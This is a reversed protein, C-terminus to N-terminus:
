HLQNLLKCSRHYVGSSKLECIQFSSHWCFKHGLGCCVIVSLVGWLLIRPWGWFEVVAGYSKVGLLEQRYRLILLLRFPYFCEVVEQSWLFHVVLNSREGLCLICSTSWLIVNSSDNHVIPFSSWQHLYTQNVRRVKLKVALLDTGLCKILYQVSFPQHHLHTKEGYLM